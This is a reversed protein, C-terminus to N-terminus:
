INKIIELLIEALATEALANMQRYDEAASDESDDSVKRISLFPVSCSYCVSAIAGTEMDFTNIGFLNYFEEKMEDKTIFFDGTGCKLLRINLEEPIKALLAKDAEYIYVQDPKEGKKRGLASLDFDCEQFSTGAFVTGRKVGKIGGSLGINIICDPKEKEILMATAAAANTKGIMCRVAFVDKGYANFSLTEYKNMEGSQVGFPEASNKLPLFELDDAIVVGIKKYEM